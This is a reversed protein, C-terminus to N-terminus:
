ENKSLFFYLVLMKSPIEGRNVPVHPVRGDFFLSDGEHLIVEDEGIIYSCSGSIM